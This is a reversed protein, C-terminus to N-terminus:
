ITIVRRWKEMVQTVLDTYPKDSIIINKHLETPQIGASELNDNSVTVEAGEELITQFLKGTKTSTNKKAFWVGDSILFIGVSKGEKLAKQALELMNAGLSSEYPAKTIVYGLDIEYIENEM